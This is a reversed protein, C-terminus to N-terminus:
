EALRGSGVGYREIEAKEVEHRLEPDHHHRWERLGLGDGLRLFHGSPSRLDHYMASNLSGLAGTTILRNRKAAELLAAEGMPRGALRLVERVADLLTYRRVGGEGRQRFIELTAASAPRFIPM